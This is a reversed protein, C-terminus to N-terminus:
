ACFLTDADEREREREIEYVCMRESKKIAYLWAKLTVMCHLTFLAVNEFVCSFLLSIFTIFDTLYCVTVFILNVFEDMNTNWIRLFLVKSQWLIKWLLMSSIRSRECDTSKAEPIQCFCRGTYVAVREVQHCCGVRECLTNWQSSYLCLVVVGEFHIVCQDDPPFFPLM